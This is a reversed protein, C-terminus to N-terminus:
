RHAARRLAALTALTEPVGSAVDSALLGRDGFRASWRAATMGHVVVASCAAEFAGMSCAFTTTIGALTDGSGATALAPSGIENVALRGNSAILTRPGKLVVVAREGAAEQASKVARVRDAEVAASTTGLLRGLEGAHPTLITAAKRHRLAGIGGEGKALLTLADADIVLTLESALLRLVVQWARDDTGFGPGVLVARKGRLAREVTEDLHAASSADIPTTMAEVVRAQLAQVAEPFTALTVSGAGARLAGESAMRAAGLTGPTGCFLAVQGVAHKHTGLPRPTLWSAVDSPELLEAVPSVGAPLAGSVGISVLHVTGAHEAGKTTYLGIKRTGFTLTHAAHAAVGHVEGTDADIGSPIDLAVVPVGASSMADVADRPAGAIVRALGTGFLADVVLSCCTLESAGPAKAVFAGGTGVFADRQLRADRTLKEEDGVFFVRLELGAIALHRAVVFGDGGNNGPGCVIAVPAPPARGWARGSSGAVLGLIVEAAGRGANEMLVVSPVHATEIHHADFARAGKTDVVPIM